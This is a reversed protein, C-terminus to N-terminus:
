GTMKRMLVAVGAFGAGAALLPLVWDGEQQRESAPARAQVRPESAAAFPNFLAGGEEAAAGRVTLGLAVDASANAPAGATLWLALVAHAAAGTRHRALAIRSPGLAAAVGVTM